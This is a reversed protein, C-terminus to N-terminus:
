TIQLLGDGHLFMAGQDDAEIPRGKVQNVRPGLSSMQRGKRLEHGLADMSRQSGPRVQATGSGPTRDDGAIVRALMTDEIKNIREGLNSRLPVWTRCCIALFIREPTKQTRCSFIYSHHIYRDRLWGVWDIPEHQTPHVSWVEMAGPKSM